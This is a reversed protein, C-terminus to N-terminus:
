LISKGYIKEKYWHFVTQNNKVNDTVVMGAQITNGNGISIHPIVTSRICFRNDNGVTVHGCLLSASFINNDGITTDHAIITPVTLYNFKGIVVNTEIICNPHIITGEDIFFNDPLMVSPHILTAFIGGKAKIKEIMVRRFPIDAMGLAFLDGPQIEYSDIDGLIPQKFHYHSYYKEINYDYELYGKIDGFFQTIESAVAGTGIIVIM